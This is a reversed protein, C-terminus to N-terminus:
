EDVENFNPVGCENEAANILEEAATLIERKLYARAFESIKQGVEYSFVAKCENANRYDKTLCAMKNVAADFKQNNM